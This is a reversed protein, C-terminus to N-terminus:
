ASNRMILKAELLHRSDAAAPTTGAIRTALIDVALDAMRDYDQAVTTLSPSAFRSLPHDDHGAVRIDGGDRNQSVRLGLQNAAAM